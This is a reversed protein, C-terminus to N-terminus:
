EGGGHHAEALSRRQEIIWAKKKGLIERSRASKESSSGRGMIPMIGSSYIERYEGMTQHTLIKDPQRAYIDWAWIIAVMDRRTVGNTVNSFQPRREAVAAELHDTFELDPPTDPGFRKIIDLVWHKDDQDIPFGEELDDILEQNRNALVMSESPKEWCYETDGLRYYMALLLAYQFLQVHGRFAPCCIITSFSNCFDTSWNTNKYKKNDDDPDRIEKSNLEISVNRAEKPLLAPPSMGFIAECWRWLKKEEMSTQQLVVEDERSWIDEAMVYDPRLALLPRSIGNSDTTNGKRKKKSPVEIYEEDTSLEREFEFTILKAAKKRKETKKVAEAIVGSWEDQDYGYSPLARGRGYGLGRATFGGRLNGLHSASDELQSVVSNEMHNLLNAGELVDPDISHRATSAFHLLLSAAEMMEPDITIEDEDIYSQTQQSM